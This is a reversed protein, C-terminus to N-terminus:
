GLFFTELKDVINIFFKWIPHYLDSIIPIDTTIFALPNSFSIYTSAIGLGIVILIGIVKMFSNKKLILRILFNIVLGIEIFTEIIALEVIPLHLFIFSFVVPITLGAGIVFGLLLGGLITFVFGIFICIM